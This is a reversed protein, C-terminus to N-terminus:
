VDLPVIAKKEASVHSKAFADSMMTSVANCCAFLASVAMDYWRKCSCPITSRMTVGYRQEM